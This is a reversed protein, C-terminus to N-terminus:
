APVTRTAWHNQQSVMGRAPTRIDNFHADRAALALQHELCVAAIWIDIVPIPRGTRRLAVRVHAYRLATQTGMPPVQCARLFTELRAQNQRRRSSNLVAYRAEALVPLPLWIDGAEEVRAGLTPDDALHAWLINSHIAVPV